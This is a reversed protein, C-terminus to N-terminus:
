EPLPDDDDPGSLDQPGQGPLMADPPPMDPDDPADVAQGEVEVPSPTFVRERGIEAGGRGIGFGIESGPAEEDQIEDQLTEAVAGCALGSAMMAALAAAAMRM